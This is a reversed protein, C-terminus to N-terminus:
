IEFRQLRVKAMLAMTNDMVMYVTLLGSTSIPRAALRGSSWTPWMVGTNLRRMSLEGLVYCAFLSLFSVAIM